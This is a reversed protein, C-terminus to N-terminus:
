KGEPEGFTRSDDPDIEDRFEAQIQKWMSLENESPAAPQKDSPIRSWWRIQQALGLLRVWPILIDIRLGPGQDFEVLKVTAHLPSRIEKEPSPPLGEKKQRELWELM